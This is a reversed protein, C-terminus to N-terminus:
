SKSEISPNVSPKIEKNVRTQLYSILQYMRCDCREAVITRLCRTLAKLENCSGNREPKPLEGSATARHITSRMAAVLVRRCIGDEMKSASRMIM